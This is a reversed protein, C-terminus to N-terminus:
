SAADEESKEDTTIITKPIQILSIELFRLGSTQGFAMMEGLSEGNKIHGVHDAEFKAKLKEIEVMLLDYSIFKEM